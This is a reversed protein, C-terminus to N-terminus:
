FIFPVLIKRRRPYEKFEMRYREHKKVAWQVMQAAGLLSFLWAFVNGTIASFAVWAM